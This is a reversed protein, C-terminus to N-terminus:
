RDFRGFRQLQFTVIAVANNIGANGIKWSCEPASYESPTLRITGFSM